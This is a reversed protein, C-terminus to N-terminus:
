CFINRGSLTPGGRVIAFAEEKAETMLSFDSILFNKPFHSFRSRESNTGNIFFILHSFPRVLYSEDNGIGTIGTPRESKNWDHHIRRSLGREEATKNDDSKDLSFHPYTGTEYDWTKEL